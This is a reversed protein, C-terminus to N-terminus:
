NVVAYRICRKWCVCLMKNSIGAEVLRNSPMDLTGVGTNFLFTWCWTKFSKSSESPQVRLAWRPRMINDAVSGCYCASPIDTDTHRRPHHGLSISSLYMVTAWTIPSWPVDKLSWLWHLRASLNTILLLWLGANECVICHWRSESVYVTSELRM